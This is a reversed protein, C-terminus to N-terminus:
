LVSFSPSFYADLTLQSVTCAPLRSCCPRLRALSRPGDFAHSIAVAQSSLPKASSAELFSAACCAPCGSPWDIEIIDHLGHWVYPHRTLRMTVTTTIAGHFPAPLEIRLLKAACAAPTWSTTHQHPRSLLQLLVLGLCLMRVASRSLRRHSAHQCAHASIGMPWKNEVAVRFHKANPMPMQQHCAM